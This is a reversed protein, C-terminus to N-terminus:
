NVSLLLMQKRSNGLNREATVTIFYDGYIPNSPDVKLWKQDSVVTWTSNTLLEVKGTSNLSDSLTLERKSLEFISIETINCYKWPTTEKYINKSGIPVLLYKYDFPSFIDYGNIEIPIKDYFNIGLIKSKYFAGEGISDVSEPIKLVVIEECNEFAYPRIIKVTFPIDFNVTEKKSPYQILESIDNDYLVGMSDKFYQSEYSVRFSLISNNRFAGRGISSVSAPIRIIKYNLSCQYFAEEGISLLGNNLIIDGLPCEYFTRIGINRLSSPFVIDNLELCKCFSSDGISTLSEPLTVKKLTACNFFIKKGLESIFADIKVSDIGCKEFASEGIYNVAKPILLESSFKSCQYFAKTGISILSVPLKVTKLFSQGSFANNGISTINAPLKMETLGNVIFSINTYFANAPITNEPYSTIRNSATGVSGNYAIITAGSIDIVSLVPMSDRMTKFDRADLTGRMTLNTITNKESKTLVSSLTGAINTLSKVVQANLGLAIVILSITIFIRKM